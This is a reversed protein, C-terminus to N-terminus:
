VGTVDRSIEKLLLLPDVAIEDDNSSFVASGLRASGITNTSSQRAKIPDVDFM